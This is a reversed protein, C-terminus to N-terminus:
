FFNTPSSHEWTLYNGVVYMMSIIKYLFKLKSYVNGKKTVQLRAFHHYSIEQYQRHLKEIAKLLQTFTCASFGLEKGIDVIFSKYVKRYSFVYSSCCLEWYKSRRVKRFGLYASTCSHFVLCITECFTATGKQCCQRPLLVTFSPEDATTFIVARTFSLHDQNQCYQLCFDFPYGADRFFQFFLKRISLFLM